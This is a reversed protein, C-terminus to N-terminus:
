KTGSDQATELDHPGPLIFLDLFNRFRYRFSNFQEYSM